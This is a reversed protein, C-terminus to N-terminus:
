NVSPAPIKREQLGTTRDWFHSNTRNPTMQMGYLTPDISENVFVIHGDCYTMNVGGPHRSSPFGYSEYRHTIEPSIPPPFPPPIKWATFHDMSSPRSGGVDYDNDGNIHEILAGSNSWVFGFAHKPDRDCGTCRDARPGSDWVATNSDFDYAYYWTHVSESVLYTKSTGDHSQVYNITSVIAPLRERGDQSPLCLDDLVNLNRADDFFVGNGPFERNIASGGGLSPPLTQRHPDFFAWGANVVYDLWPQGAIEPFDSPCILIDIQTADPTRNFNHAWDQWLADNELYPLIMVVWSARRGISPLEPQPTSASKPSNPDVLANIYGPLRQQSSDFSTLATALQKLNNKCSANRSSERASQVAPLLLAVLAGIIAIVVLLEVLTFAALRHASAAIAPKDIHGFSIRRQFRM